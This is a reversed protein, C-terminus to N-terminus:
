QSLLPCIVRRTRVESPVFYGGTIPTGCRCRRACLPSRPRRGDHGVGQTPLAGVLHSQQEEELWRRFHHARGNFNDTVVWCAAVGGSVVALDATDGDWQEAPM